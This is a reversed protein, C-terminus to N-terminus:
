PAEEIHDIIGYKVAEAPTLYWDLTTLEKFKKLTMAKKKKKMRKVMINDCINDLSDQHKLKRRYNEPNTDEVSQHGWHAMLNSNPTASRVDGAQLLVIGMSQAYGVAVTHVPMGCGRILDFIALGIEVDGGITSIEIRIPAEHDAQRLAALGLWVLHYIDEDISGFILMTRNIMDVQQHLRDLLITKTTAPKTM